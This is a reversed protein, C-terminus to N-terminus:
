DNKQETQLFKQLRRRRLESAESTEGRLNVNRIEDQDVSGLDEIKIFDEQNRKRADASTGPLNADSTSSSVVKAAAENETTDVNETAVETTAPPPSSPSPAATPVTENVPINATIASYQNMLAFSADLM